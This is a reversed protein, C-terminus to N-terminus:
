RAAFLRVAIDIVLISSVVTDLYFTFYGVDKSGKEISNSYRWWGSIFFMVMLVFDCLVIGSIPLHERGLQYLWFSIWSIEEMIIYGESKNLIDLFLMVGWFGLLVINLINFTM